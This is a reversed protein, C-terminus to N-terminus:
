NVVAFNTALIKQGCNGSSNFELFYLPLGLFPMKKRNRSGLPHSLEEPRQYAFPSPKSRKGACLKACDISQVSIGLVELKSWLAFYFFDKVEIEHRPVLLVKLNPCTVTLKKFTAENFAHPSADRFDELNTTKALADLMADSYAILGTGTWYFHQAGSLYIIKLTKCYKAILRPIFEETLKIESSGFTLRVSELRTFNAAILFSINREYILPPTEVRHVVHVKIREPSLCELPTSLIKLNPFYNIAQTFSTTELRELSELKIDENAEYPM